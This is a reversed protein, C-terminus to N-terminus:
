NTEANSRTNTTPGTIAAKSVASKEGVGAVQNAATLTPDSAVPKPKLDQFETDPCSKSAISNNNSSHSNTVVINSDSTRISEDNTISSGSSTCSLSQVQQQHAQHQHTQQERQQKQMYEVIIEQFKLKIVEKTTPDFRKLTSTLSRAYLHDDDVDISIVSLDNFAASTSARSHSLSYHNPNSNIPMSINNNDNMHDQYLRSSSRFNSRNSSMCNGSSNTNNIASTFVPAVTTIPLVAVTTGNDTQSTKIERKAGRMDKLVKSSRTQRVDKVSSMSDENVSLNNNGNSCNGNTTDNTSINNNNTTTSSATSLNNSNSSNSTDLNTGELVYDMALYYKWLKESPGCVGVYSGNTIGDKREILIKHARFFNTRLVHWVRKIEAVPHGIEKSFAQFEDDRRRHDKYRPHKNNWLFPRERM